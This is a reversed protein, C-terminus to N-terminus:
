GFILQYIHEWMGMDFVDMAPEEGIFSHGIMLGSILAVFLLLPIWIIKIITKLIKQAKNSETKETQHEQESVERPKSEAPQASAMFDSKSEKEAPETKPMVQEQNNVADIYYEKFDIPGMTDEISLNRKAQSPSDSSDTGSSSNDPSFTMQKKPDLKTSQEGNLEQEKDSSGMKEDQLTEDKQASPNMQNSDKEIKFEELEPTYFGAKIDSDSEQNTVQSANSDVKKPSSSSKPFDFSDKEQVPENKEKQKSNEGISFVKTDWKDLADRDLEDEQSWKLKGVPLRSEKQQNAPKAMSKKERSSANVQEMSGDTQNDLHKEKDPYSM